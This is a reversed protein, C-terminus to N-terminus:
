NTAEMIHETVRIVAFEFFSNGVPADDASAYRSLIERGVTGNIAEARLASSSFEALSWM